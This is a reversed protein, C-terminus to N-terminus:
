PTKMKLSERPTLIIGMNKVQGKSKEMSTNSELEEETSWRSKVVDTNNKSKDETSWSSKVMNTNDNPEILIVDAGGEQFPNTRLNPDDALFPAMTFNFSNSVDYKGQFDLKYANNSIRQTIKFPGDIRPMLKSKRENPFREKRLQVWVQDGIKFIMERRRKNAQKAYQKTIEELNQRAEAYIQKVMKAKKKGDVWVRESLPLPIIDLPSIPNLGYVIEFPSFKSASHMVHNYAFEAHPLCDEWSKLNKKIFARM